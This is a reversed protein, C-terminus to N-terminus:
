HGVDAEERFTITVTQEVHPLSSSPTARLKSYFAEKSLPRHRPGSVFDPIARWGHPPDRASVEVCYSLRPAADEAGLTFVEIKQVHRLFLLYRNAAEKFQGLLEAIGAPTYSAQSIESERAVAKSRLPFRFLTGEFRGRLDCGFFLYPSFQDPFQALLDTDTFRVQ